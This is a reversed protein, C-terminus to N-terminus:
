PSEGKDELQVVNNLIYWVPAPMGTGVIPFEKSLLFVDFCNRQFNWNVGGVVVDEPIKVIVGYENEFCEYDLCLNAEKNRFGRVVEEFVNLAVQMIVGHKRLERYEENFRDM